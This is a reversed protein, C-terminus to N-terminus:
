HEEREPLDYSKDGFDSPVTFKWEQRDELLGALGRVAETLRDISDSLVLIEDSPPPVRGVKPSNM